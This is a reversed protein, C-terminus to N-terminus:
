DCEGFFKEALDIRSDFSLLAGSRVEDFLGNPGEERLSIAHCKLGAFGGQKPFVGGSQVCFHRVNEL